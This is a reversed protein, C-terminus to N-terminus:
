ESSTLMKSVFATPKYVYIHGQILVCGVASKSADSEIQFPKTFNPLALAPHSCLATFPSYIASEETNTWDWRTNKRLLAYTPAALDVFHQM